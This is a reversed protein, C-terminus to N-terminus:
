SAVGLVGCNEEVSFFEYLAVVVAFFLNELRDSSRGYVSTLRGFVVALMNRVAEVTALVSPRAMLGLIRLFNMQVDESEDRIILEVDAQLRYAVESLDSEFSSLQKLKSNLLYCALTEFCLARDHKAPSAILETVKFFLRNAHLFSPYGKVIFYVILSFREKFSRNAQGCLGHLEASV